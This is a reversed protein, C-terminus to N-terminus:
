SLTEGNDLTIVQGNLFRIPEHCTQNLLQAIQRVGDPKEWCAPSISIVNSRIKRKSLERSLGKSFAELGSKHSAYSVDGTEGSVAATSSIHILQGKDSVYPIFAKVLLFPLHLNIFLSEQWQEVSTETLTRGSWQELNNIVADFTMHHENLWSEISSAGDDLLDFTILQEPDQGSVYQSLCGKGNLKDTFHLAYVSPFYETLVGSIQHSSDFLLINM